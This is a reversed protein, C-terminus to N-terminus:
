EINDISYMDSQSFCVVFDNDKPYNYITTTFQLQLDASVNDITTCEGKVDNPYNSNIWYLIHSIQTSAAHYFAYPNLINTGLDRISNNPLDYIILDHKSQGDFLYITNNYMALVMGDHKAFCINILYTCDLQFLKGIRM